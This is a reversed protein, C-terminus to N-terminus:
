LQSSWIWQPLGLVTATSHISVGLLYTKRKGQKIMVVVSNARGKFKTAMNKASRRLIVFYAICASITPEENM